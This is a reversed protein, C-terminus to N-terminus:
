LSIGLIKRLEDSHTKGGGLNQDFQFVQWGLKEAARINDLNDDIILLDSGTAGAREEVIRYIREEPKCVNEQSSDVIFEFHRFLPYNKVQNEVVGLWNNTCVAMRYDTRSLDEVLKWAPLILLQNKIWAEALLHSSEGYDFKERAMAWFEEGNMRGHDLESVHEYLFNIMESDSAKLVEGLSRLSAKWDLLVGGLDFIIWQPKTTLMLYEIV